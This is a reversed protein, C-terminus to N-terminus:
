KLKGGCLPCVAPKAEEYEKSLRDYDETSTLVNNEAVKVRYILNNLISLKKEDETVDENLIMLKNIKNEAKIIEYKAQEAEITIIKDIITKLKALKDQTEKGKQVKTSLVNVADECLYCNPIIQQRKDAIDIKDLLVVLKESKDEEKTIEEAKIYLINLDQELATLYTFQKSKDTLSKINDEKNKEQRKLNDSETKINKLTIDIIELNAMKNFHEAVKGPTEDLLFPKDFQKQVNIDQINLAKGVEEPVNTGFAVLELDNVKYANDTNGKIRTVTNNDIDLSVETNKKTFEGNILTRYAEGSPRNEIILHLARLIASKGSDSSGTIVNIGETLKLETNKHSQFNKLVLKNLM